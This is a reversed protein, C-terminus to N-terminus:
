AADPLISTVSKPRDGPSSSSFNLSIAARSSSLSWSANNARIILARPPVSLVYCGGVTDLREAQSQAVSGRSLFSLSFSFALTQSRRYTPKGPFSNTMKLLPAAQKM